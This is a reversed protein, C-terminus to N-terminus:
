PERPAWNYVRSLTDGMLKALDSESLRTSRRFADVGQGYSLLATARTWDTGWLCRDLGYADFIRKLPAWIDDYPYSQHSLTCAGSIKIMVNPHRALHLVKPLEAWPDPPAPPAIPQPLGIHDIVIITNPNRAAITDLRDLQGWCFVNVPLAHNASAALMQGIGPNDVAVKPDLMLRAGIAGKTSRWDAIQETIAPNLPDFPRVLGFRTPHRAHAELAYSADYRYLSFPSVLIAGNVGVETMARVMDEATVEEPGAITAAWPREPKNREYAHVQADIIM